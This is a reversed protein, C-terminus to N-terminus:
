QYVHYNSTYNFVSAGKYTRFFAQVVHNGPTVTAQQSTAGVTYTFDSPTSGVLQCNPASAGDVFMCLSYQNGTVDSKGSQIYLDAEIVCNGGKAPCNVIIPKGIATDQNRHIFFGSSGYYGADIYSSKLTYTTAAVAANTSGLTSILVFFIAVVDLLAIKAMLKM